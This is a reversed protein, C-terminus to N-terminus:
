ITRNFSQDRVKDKAKNECLWCISNQQFHYEDKDTMNLPLNTQKFYFNLHNEIKKMVEVFWNVCDLGFYYNYGNQIVNPIDSQIYFGVAIPVQKYIVVTSEGKAEYVPQNMCEFDCYIRVPINTKFYSKTFYLTDHSPFVIRTAEQNDCLEKHQQLTDEREFSTLCRRCVHQMSNTKSQKIFTHLKKILVYHNKYIGLDLNFQGTGVKIPNLSGDELIEFVNICLNPYGQRRFLEQNNTEFVKIDKLKLPFTIDNLNLQQINNKYSSPLNQNINVPFLYALVCWAFCYQDNNQINLVSKNKFPLEVWTGARLDNTRYFGITFQTVRQFRLGSGRQEAESIQSELESQLANGSRDDKTNVQVSQFQFSLEQETDERTLFILKYSVNYKFKDKKILSAFQDSLEEFIPEIDNINIDHKIKIKSRFNKSIAAELNYDKFKDSLTFEFNENKNNQTKRIDETIILEGSNKRHKITKEHQTKKSSFMEQKCSECYYKTRASM